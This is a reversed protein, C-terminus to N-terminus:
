RKAKLSAVAGKAETGVTGTWGKLPTADGAVAELAAADESKGVAALGRVAVVKAVWSKSKLEEKLPPLASPGILGLDHVM